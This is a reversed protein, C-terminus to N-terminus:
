YRTPIKTKEIDVWKYKGDSLLAKLGNVASSYDLQPGVTIIQASRKSFKLEIFPIVYGCNSRFSVKFADVNNTEEPLLTPVTLIARVEKEHAFCESKFLFRWEILVETMLTNALQEGFISFENQIEIM